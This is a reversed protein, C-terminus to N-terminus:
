STTIGPRKQLHSISGSPQSNILKASVESGFRTIIGGYRLQCQTSQILIEEPKGQLCQGCENSKSNSVKAPHM